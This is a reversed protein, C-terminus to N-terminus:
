PNYPLSSDHVILRVKGDDTKRFVFTKDVSIENGDMDELFVKGMSIGINGHVQVEEAGRVGNDYRVKAWPKLAFGGDNPYNEDGGVFYAMAGPKTKRFTQDGWALTPKFFVRGNDYDYADTLVKDAFARYDEGAAHQRGIEVLADCWAQQAANVEAETLAPVEETAVDETTAANDADATSNPNECSTAAFLLAIAGFLFSKTKM